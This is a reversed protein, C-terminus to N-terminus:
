PPSSKRPPPNGTTDQANRVETRIDTLTVLTKTLILTDQCQQSFLLLPLPQFRQSPSPPLSALEFGREAEKGEALTIM